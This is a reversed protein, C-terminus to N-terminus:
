HGDVGALVQTNEPVPECDAKQRELPPKDLVRHKTPIKAMDTLIDKRMEDCLKKINLLNNRLRNGSAKVKKQSFKIHDTEMAKVMSCIKEYNEM